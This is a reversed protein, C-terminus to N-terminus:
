KAPNLVQCERAGHRCGVLSRMPRPGVQLLAAWKAPFWWTKYPWNQCLLEMSDMTKSRNPSRNKNPINKWFFSPGCMPKAAGDLKVLIKGPVFSGLKSQHFIGMMTLLRGSFMCYAQQHTHTYIYTHTHTYIYISLSLSDDQIQTLHFMRVFFFDVIYLVIMKLDLKVMSKGSKHPCDMAHKKGCSEELWNAKDFHDFSPLQSLFWWSPHKRPYWIRSINKPLYKILYNGPHKILYNGPHKILYNGPHKIPYNGPHKIPYNSPFKIPYNGPHKILYNGPHKIPYNGPYKMTYGVQMLKIHYVLNLLTAGFVGSAM